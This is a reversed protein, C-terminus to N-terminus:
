SVLPASIMSLDDRKVVEEHGSRLSDVVRITARTSAVIEEFSIPAPRGNQISECFV